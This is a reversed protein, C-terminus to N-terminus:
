IKAKNIRTFDDPYRSSALANLFSTTGKYNMITYM